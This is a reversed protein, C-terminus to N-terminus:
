CKQMNAKVMGAIAAVIRSIQGFEDYEFTRYESWLTKYSGYSIPKDSEASIVKGERGIKSLWRKTLLGAEALKGVFFSLRCNSAAKLPSTLNGSLYERLPPGSIGNEFIPKSLTSIAQALYDFIEDTIYPNLRWQPNVNKHRSVSRKDEGLMFKSVMQDLDQISFTPQKFYRKVLDERVLFLDILQGWSVFIDAEM